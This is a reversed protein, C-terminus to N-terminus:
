VRAGVGDFREYARVLADVHEPREVDLPADTLKVKTV